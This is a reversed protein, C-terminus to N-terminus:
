ARRLARADHRGLFHVMRKTHGNALQALARADLRERVRCLALVFQRQARFGRLLHKSVCRVSRLFEVPNNGGAFRM